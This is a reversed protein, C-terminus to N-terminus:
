PFCLNRDRLSRTALELMVISIDCPQSAFSVGSLGSLDGFKYSSIQVGGEPGHLQHCACGSTSNNVPSKCWSPFISPRLPQFMQRLLATAVTFDEEGRGSATRYCLFKRDVAKRGRAAGYKYSIALGTLNRGLSKAFFYEETSLEACPM